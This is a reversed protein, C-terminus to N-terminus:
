LGRLPTYAISLQYVKYLENRNSLSAFNILVETPNDLIPSIEVVLSFDHGRELLDSHSIAHPIHGYFRFAALIFSADSYPQKVSAYTLEPTRQVNEM